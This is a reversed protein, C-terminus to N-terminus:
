VNERPEKVWEHWLVLAVAMLTPGVFVGLIGFTMLGGIVSIFSLLIPM